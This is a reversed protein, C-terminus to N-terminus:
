IILFYFDHFYNSMALLCSVTHLCFNLGKSTSFDKVHLLGPSILQLKLFTHCSEKEIKGRFCDRYSNLFLVGYFSFYLSNLVYTIFARYM